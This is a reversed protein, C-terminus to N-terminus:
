VRTGYGSARAGFENNVPDWNQTTFFHWGFAQLSLSSSSILEYVILALLGIVAVGCALMAGHFTGDAMRIRSDSTPRMVPESRVISLREQPTGKDNDADLQPTRLSQNGM